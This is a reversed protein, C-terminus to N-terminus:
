LRRRSLPMHWPSASFAVALFLNFTIKGFKESLVIFSLKLYDNDVFRRGVVRSFYKFTEFVIIVIQVGCENWVRAMIDAPSFKSKGNTHFGCFVVPYDKCICVATRSIVFPESSHGSFAVIVRFEHNSSCSIVAVSCVVLSQFTEHCPTSFGIFCLM